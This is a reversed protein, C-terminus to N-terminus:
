GRIRQIILTLSVGCVFGVCFMNLNPTSAATNSVETLYLKAFQEYSILQKSLLNYIEYLNEMAPSQHAFNYWIIYRRLVSLAINRRLTHEKDQCITYIIKLIFAKDFHTFNFQDLMRLCDIHIENVCKICM